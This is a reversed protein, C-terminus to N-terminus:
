LQRQNEEKVFNEESVHGNGVVRCHICSEERSQHRFLELTLFKQELEVESCMKVTTRPGENM